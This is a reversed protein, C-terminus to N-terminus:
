INELFKWKFCKKMPTKSVNNKVWKKFKELM